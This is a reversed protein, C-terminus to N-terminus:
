LWSLKNCQAYSVICGYVTVDVYSVFVCLCSAHWTATLLDIFGVRVMHLWHVSMPGICGYCAAWSWGWGHQPQRVELGVVSTSRKWKQMAKLEPKAQHVIRFPDKINWTEPSKRTFCPWSIPPGMMQMYEWMKGTQSWNMEYYTTAKFLAMQPSWLLSKSHEDTDSGWTQITLM